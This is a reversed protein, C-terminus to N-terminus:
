RSRGRRLRETESNHATEIREGIRRTFYRQAARITLLKVTQSALFLPVKGNVTDARAM